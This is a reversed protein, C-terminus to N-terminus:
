RWKRYRELLRSLADGTEPPLINEDVKAQVYERAAKISSRSAKAIISSLMPFWVHKDVPSDELIETADYRFDDLRRMNLMSEYKDTRSRYPPGTGRRFAQRGVTM